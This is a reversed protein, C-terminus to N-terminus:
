VGGEGGPRRRSTQEARQKGGSHCSACLCQLNAQDWFLGLDGRHPQIHDAVLKATDAEMRGCTRCTFADRVLVSWRLRRWAATNYLARIPNLKTRRRDAEADGGLYKAMPALRNGGGGLRRIRM